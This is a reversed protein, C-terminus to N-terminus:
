AMRGFIDDANSAYRIYAVHFVPATRLHGLCVPVSEALKGAIEREGLLSYRAFPKSLIEVGGVWPKDIRHCSHEQFAMLRHYSVHHRESKMVDEGSAMM